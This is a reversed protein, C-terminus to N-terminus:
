RIEGEAGSGPLSGRGAQSLSRQWADWGRYGATLAVILVAAGIVYLGYRDWLSKMQDRRLEEDVDRIFETDSM